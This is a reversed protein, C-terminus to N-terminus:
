GQKGRAWESLKRAVEPDIRDGLTNKMTRVPKDERGAVDDEMEGVFMRASMRTVNERFITWQMAADNTVVFVDRNEARANRALSEIVADAEKGASSFIINVGGCTSSKGESRANGGGDFVIYADYEGHAFGAVDDILRTRARHYVDRNRPDDEDILRSYESTARIVNYGDVILVKERQASVQM